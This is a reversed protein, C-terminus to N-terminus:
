LMIIIVKLPFSNLEGPISFSSLKGGYKDKLQQGYVFEGLLFAITAAAACPYYPDRLMNRSMRKPEEHLKFHECDHLVKQVSAKCENGAKFVEIAEEIKKPCSWQHIDATAKSLDDKTFVIFLLYYSSSINYHTDFKQASERLRPNITRYKLGSAVMKYTKSVRSM